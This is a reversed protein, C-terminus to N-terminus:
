QVDPGYLSSPEEKSARGELQGNMFFELDSPEQFKDTPLRIEGPLMPKVLHPTVLILLESEGKQFSQRSFLAGLGPLDGLGPFMTVTERLSENSLGAIGITQGDALEVTAPGDPPIEFATDNPLTKVPLGDVRM